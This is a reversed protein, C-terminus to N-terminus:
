YLPAVLTNCTQLLPIVPTDRYKGMVIGSGEKYKVLVIRTVTTKLMNSIM